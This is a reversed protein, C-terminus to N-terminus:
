MQVSILLSNQNFSATKKFFEPSQIIIQISQPSIFLCTCLSHTTKSSMIMMISHSLITQNFTVLTFHLVIITSPLIISVFLYSPTINGMDIHTFSNSNLDCLLHPPSILISPLSSPFPLSPLLNPSSEMQCPPWDTRTSPIFPILTHHHIFHFSSHFTNSTPITTSSTQLFPPSPFQAFIILPFQNIFLFLFM